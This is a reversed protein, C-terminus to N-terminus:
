KGELDVRQVHVFMDTFCTDKQKRSNKGSKSVCQTQSIDGNEHLGKLKELSIENIWNKLPWALDLACQAHYVSKRSKSTALLLIFNYFLQSAYHFQNLCAFM